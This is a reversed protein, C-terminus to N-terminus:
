RSTSVAWTSSTATPCIAPLDGTRYLRGGPHAGCRTPSSAAATLDPRNLYGRGLGVGGIYLEGPVGVPVPQLHADLLHTQINAIPRGIPVM